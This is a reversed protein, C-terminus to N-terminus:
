RQSRGAAIDTLIQQYDNPTAATTAPWGGSLASQHIQQSVIPGALFYVRWTDGYEHHALVRLGNLDHYPQITSPQNVWMRKLIHM